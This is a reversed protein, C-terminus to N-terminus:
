QPADRCRQSLSIGALRIEFCRAAVRRFPLGSDRAETRASIRQNLPGVATAQAKVVEIRAGGTDRPRNTPSNFPPRSTM